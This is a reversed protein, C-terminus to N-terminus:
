SDAIKAASVVDFDPPGPRETPTRESQDDELIRKVEDQPIDLKPNLNDELVKETESWRPVIREGPSPTTITFGPRQEPVLLAQQSDFLLSLAQALNPSLVRSALERALAAYAMAISQERLTKLHSWGFRALAQEANLIPKTMTASVTQQNDDRLPMYAERNSLLSVFFIFASAFRTRVFILETLSHTGSRLSPILSRSSNIQSLFNGMQYRFFIILQDRAVTTSLKRCRGEHCTM